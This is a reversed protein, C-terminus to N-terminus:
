EAFTRPLRWVSQSTRQGDPGEVNVKDPTGDVLRFLRGMPAPTMREQYTFWLWRRFSSGFVMIHGEDGVFPYESTAAEDFTDVPPRQALYQTLVSRIWGTDTAEEGIDEPEAARAIMACLAYCRDGSPMTPMEGIDLFAAAFEKPRTAWRSSSGLPVTGRDTELRYHPPTSVTKVVREIRARLNLEDRIAPLLLTPDTTEALVASREAQEALKRAAEEETCGLAEALLAPTLTPPRSM